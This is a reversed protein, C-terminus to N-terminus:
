EQTYINHTYRGTHVAHSMAWTLKESTPMLQIFGRNLTLREILWVDREKRFRQESKWVYQEQSVNTTFLRTFVVEFWCHWQLNM